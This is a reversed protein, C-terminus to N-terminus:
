HKRSQVLALPVVPRALAAVLEARSKVNFTQFLQSLQNRVTNPSRGLTKAIESNRRGARVLDLVQRKAPPIRDLPVGTTTSAEGVRRAIWSHPWPDIKRGARAIWRRDKTVDYLALACLAARWDYNFDEFISWAETLAAKGEDVDGIRLWAVGQSYSEFGKVRPDTGYSLIPIISSSLARYRALYQEAIAPEDFAFLEALVLLAAREEGIADNWSVRQAVEHAEQLQEAAFITEGASRALQARDLCCLISWHDSPALRAAKRFGAFAALENGDLEDIGALLRTVHFHELQLGSTWAITEFVYRVREGVERLPLERCLLALTVLANAKLYQDPAAAVEFEDLAKQLEDVQRLIEGRRLAVWSLLIRARGRNNPNVSALQENAADEAEGHQQTMWAILGRYHVADFYWPDGPSMEKIAREILRRGTAYDRTLGLAAGLMVDRAIKSEQSSKPAESLAAIIDMYRRQRIAVRASALVAEFVNKQDALERCRDFDAASFAEEFQEADFGSRTAIATTLM